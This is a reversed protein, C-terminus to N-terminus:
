VLESAANSAAEVAALFGAYQAEKLESVKGVNFQGLLAKAKDTGGNPSGAFKLLADRVQTLSVGPTTEPLPPPNAAPATTEVKAKRPKKPEDATVASGSEVLAEDHAFAEGLTLFGSGIQKFAESLKKNNM